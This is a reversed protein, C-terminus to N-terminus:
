RSFICSLVSKKNVGELPLKNHNICSQLEAQSTREQIFAEIEEYTQYVYQYSAESEQMVIYVGTEGYIITDVSNDPTLSQTVAVLEASTDDSEIDAVSSPTLGLNNALTAFNSSDVQQSFEYLENTVVRSKLLQLKFERKFDDRSWGYIDLITADFTEDGGALIIPEAIGEEIEADSVTLEQENAIQEIVQAEIVKNSASSLALEEELERNENQAVNQATNFQFLLEDYYVYSDNVKLVPTPIIQSVSQVLGSTNVQSYVANLYLWITFFLTLIAIITSTIVIKQQTDTLPRSHKKGTKLIHRRHDELTDNTPLSNEIKGKDSQKKKFKKLM